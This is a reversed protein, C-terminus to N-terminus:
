FPVLQCGICLLRDIHGVSPWGAFGQAEGEVLSTISRGPPDWDAELGLQLAPVQRGGEGSLGVRSFMAAAAREVAMGIGLASGAPRHDRTRSSPNTM